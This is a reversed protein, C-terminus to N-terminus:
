SIKTLSHTDICYFYSDHHECILPITYIVEPYTEFLLPVTSNSILNKFLQVLIQTNERPLRSRTDIPSFPLPLLPSHPDTRM